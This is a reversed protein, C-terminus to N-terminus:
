SHRVFAGWVFGGAASLASLCWMVGGIFGKYRQLEQQLQRVQQRLERVEVMVDQLRM